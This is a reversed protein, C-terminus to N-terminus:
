QMASITSVLSEACTTRTLGVVRADNRPQGLSERRGLM